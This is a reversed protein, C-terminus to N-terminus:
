WENIRKFMKYKIVYDFRAHNHTENTETHSAVQGPNVMGRAWHFSPYAGAGGRGWIPNVPYLFYISPHIVYDFLQLQIGFDKHFCASLATIVYRSLYLAVSFQRRYCILPVNVPFLFFDCLMSFSNVATYCKKKTPLGQLLQSFERFALSLPKLAEKRMEKLTSYVPDGNIFAFSMLVNLVMSVKLAM